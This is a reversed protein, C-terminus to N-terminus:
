RIILLNEERSDYKSGDHRGQRGQEGSKGGFQCFNFVIGSRITLVKHYRDLCYISVPLEVAYSAAIIVFLKTSLKM